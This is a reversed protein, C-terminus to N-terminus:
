DEDSAPAAPDRGGASRRLRKVLSWFVPNSKVARKMAAISRSVAAVASGRASLPVFLDSQWTETDAWLRKYYEDGVSFDFVSFGAECAERIMEFFLFDGPSTGTLEDSAIASVDCILRDGAITSGTVSRLTGGIELGRLMFRPREGGLADRYLAHLFASCGPEAFVNDIGMQAFRDAKMTLFADVLGDTEEPTQPRVIRWGGAAEYKRLQSRYKKRKRKGSSRELVADFGGALSLSLAVDPSHGSAAEVLPNEVGGLSPVLRELSLLDIDPRGHRLASRLSAVLAPGNMGLRRVPAFNGNAHSGGPFRAVRAVPSNTVELPLMMAPEGGVSAVAVVVEACTGERWSDLFLRSQHPGCAVGACFREYRQAMGADFPMLAWGIDAPSQSSAIRGAADAM